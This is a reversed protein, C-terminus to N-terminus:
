LSVYNSAASAGKSKFGREDAYDAASKNKNLGNKDKKLGRNFNKTEQSGISVSQWM